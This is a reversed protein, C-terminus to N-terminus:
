MGSLYTSNITFVSFPQRGWIRLNRLKKAKEIFPAAPRVFPMVRLDPWRHNILPGDYQAEPAITEKNAEVFQQITRVSVGSAMEGGAHGGMGDAVVFANYQPLLLYSDENHERKMGVDSIGWGYVRWSNAKSSNEEKKEAVEETM